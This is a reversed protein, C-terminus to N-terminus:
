ESTVAATPAVESHNMAPIAGIVMLGVGVTAVGLSLYWLTRRKMLSAVAALSIAVQLAAVSYVFYQHAQFNNEAETQFKQAEVSISQKRGDIQNTKRALSQPIPKGLSELIAQASDRIHSKTSTAQYLTWQDAAKIQAVVGEEALFNGQMAGLAALGAYVGTSVAVQNLWRSEHANKEHQEHVEHAVEHMQEQLHQMQENVEIEM